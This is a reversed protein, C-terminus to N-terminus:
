RMNDNILKKMLEPNYVYYDSIDKGKDFQPIVINNLNFEKAKNSAQLLGTRDNDYCIYLNTYRFKLDTIILSDINQVESQFSIAPIRTNCWICMADKMSAAIILNSGSKPIKDYLSIIKHNFGNVWKYKKNYPQYIKYRYINNDRERYAFALEASKIQMGNVWYYDIPIINAYECQKQNIGYQKWYNIHIQSFSIAHIRIDCTSYKIQKTLKINLSEVQKGTGLNLEYSLREVTEQHSLGWMRQMLQILNGKEGTTFDKWLIYGNYYQFGFSPHIDEHLPSKIQIPLEYIGFYTALIIYDYQGSSLDTTEINQHRIHRLM